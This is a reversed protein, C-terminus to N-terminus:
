PRYRQRIYCDARITICRLANQRLTGAGTIVAIGDLEMTPSHFLPDASRIRGLRLAHARNIDTSRTDQHRRGRPSYSSM